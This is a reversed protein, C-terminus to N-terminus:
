QPDELIAAICWSLIWIICALVLHAYAGALHKSQQEYCDIIRGEMHSVFCSKM